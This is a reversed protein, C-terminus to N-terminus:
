KIVNRELETESTLREGARTKVHHECEKEENENKIGENIKIHRRVEEEFDQDLRVGSNSRM